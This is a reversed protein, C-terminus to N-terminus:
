RRSREGTLQPPLFATRFPEDAPRPVGHEIFWETGFAAAFVEDPMQLFFSEPSIQSAHALMASRKRELFAQVDIAHTILAEPSGFSELELEDFADDGNEDAPLENSQVQQRIRDRNMTMEYVLPTGAIAAARLGVRHVQIHDPHGYGGHDDYVVLVDAQEAQLVAALRHAADDLDAQWFAHEDDNTPEGIMGSDRYGLFEVRTAGLVEASRYTEEVRREWLAEGDRLVGPVPEGLEGRTALVLVVRHGSEALHAMTGGTGIAEDDPHAHFFVATSM